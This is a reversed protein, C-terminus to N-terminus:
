EIFSKNKMNGVWIFSDVTRNDDLLCCLIVCINGNGLLWIALGRSVVFIETIWLCELVLRFFFSCM